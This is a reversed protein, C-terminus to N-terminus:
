GKKGPSAPRSAAAPEGPKRAIFTMTNGGPLVLAALSILLAPVALVAGLAGHLWTWPSRRLRRGEENRRLARYLRNPKGPLVNLLNQLTTYPSYELSFRSVKEVAFGCRELLGRLASRTFFVLHNPYDLCFNRLGLLQFGLSGCNPVEIVLIGGPKLLDRAALLYQAPRDLHELVHLFTVVDFDASKLGLEPLEGLLVEVGRLRRAAAAATRSVQTGVARWGRAKFLELLDGRGCGVDLVAGPGPKWRLISRLRLRKFLALAREFAGLFRSGTEGEYYSDQYGEDREAKPPFTELSILGCELCRLITPRGAVLVRAPAGCLNCTRPTAGDASRTGTVTEEQLTM